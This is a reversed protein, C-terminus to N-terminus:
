ATKRWLDRAPPLIGAQVGVGYALVVGGGIVVTLLLWRPVGLTKGVIGVVGGSVAKEISEVFAGARIAAAEDNRVSAVVARVEAPAVDYRFGLPVKKDPYKATPAGKYPDYPHGTPIVLGGNKKVADAWKKYAPSADLRTNETM